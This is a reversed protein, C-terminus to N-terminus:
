NSKRGLKDLSYKLRRASDEGSIEVTNIIMLTCMFGNMVQSM